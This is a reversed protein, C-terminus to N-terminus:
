CMDNYPDADGYNGYTDYCHDDFASSVACGFSMRNNEDDGNDTQCQDTYHIEYVAVLSRIDIM